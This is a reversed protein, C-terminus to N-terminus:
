GADLVSFPCFYDNKFRHPENQYKTHILEGFFYYRNTPINILYIYVKFLICFNASIFFYEM